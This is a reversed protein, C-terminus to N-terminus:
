EEVGAEEKMAEQGGTKVLGFGCQSGSDNNEFQGRIM